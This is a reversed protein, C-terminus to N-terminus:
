LTLPRYIDESSANLYSRELEIGVNVFSEQICAWRGEPSSDGKKMADLLGNAVIQCRNQGFSEVASFKRDPEEALALGPALLKTFLPTESRFYMSHESYIEQLIPHFKDYDSLDFYLVGSDFRQYHSPNYLVKFSFPLEAENLSQSLSSMIVVAGEPSVNFYIRVTQSQYEASSLERSSGVNGIAMYFGNQVRNKPLKIAIADGVVASRDDPRLHRQPDAHLTLGGKRVAFSGDDELRLVQWGADFYGKGCNSEHLRDYFEVNIGLITNNELNQHLSKEESDENLALAEKLSGNYYVGYLFGQLQSSLYKEQLDEPIRQFREIAEDPLELPKFAPHRICSNSEIQINHTIDQLAELLSNQALKQQSPVDLVQM